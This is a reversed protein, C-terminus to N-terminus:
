FLLFTKEQASDLKKNDTKLPCSKALAENLNDENHRM